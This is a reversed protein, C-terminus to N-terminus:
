LGVTMNVQDTHAEDSYARMTMAGAYSATTPKGCFSEGQMELPIAGLEMTIRVDDPSEGTNEFTVTGLKEKPLLKATCFTGEALHEAASEYIHMEVATEAPCALDMSGTFDKEGKTEVRFLYDCGKMTITTPFKLPLGKWDATCGGYYPTVTLSSPKLKEPSEKLAGNMEVEKCTVVWPAFTFTHQLKEKHEILQGGVFASFSESEGGNVELSVQKEHWEESYARWTTNGEYTMTTGTACSAPGDVEIPIKETRTTVSIDGPEGTTETYGNATLGTFPAMTITCSPKGEKHTAQSSFIDIAMKKGPPCVLDTTGNVYKHNGTEMGGRLVYHCAQITITVPLGSMTCEFYEPAVTIETSAKKLEAQFEVRKCEVKKTGTNFVHVSKGNHSIQEGTLFAPYKGAAFETAQAGSAVVVSVALAAVSALGLARLNRIM